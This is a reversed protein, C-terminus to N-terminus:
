RLFGSLVYDQDAAGVHCADCDGITAAGEEEEGLACEYGSGEPPEPGRWDIVPVGDADPDLDFWEWGVAGDPNYGGGRKAMAVMLWSSPEESTPAVKVIMTCRPYETAGRPPLANIYVSRAALGLRPDPEELDLRHWGEYGAFDEQMAVFADGECPPLGGCGILALLIM